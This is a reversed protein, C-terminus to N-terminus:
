RWDIAGFIMNMAFPGKDSSITKPNKGDADAVVLFAETEIATDDPSIQDKKLLEDRLPQWAYAIHRGDPAWAIGTVRGNEPFEPVPEAKKTKVDLLYPRHSLGWKHANKREPDAALFLVKTGDPSLRGTVRGPPWDPVEVLGRVTADGLATLGIKKKKEETFAVLFTKGDKGCDLVRVGAPLDLPSTKGTEPDLLLNEVNKGHEIEPHKVVVLKKGDATWNLNLSQAPLDWTKESDPKGLTRVVVKFPWSEPPEARPPGDEVVVVAVRTGDPSLRGTGNGHTKEPASFESVKKGDPTLVHFPGERTLLLTGPGAKKPAPQPKTEDIKKTEATSPKPPEQAFGGGTLCETIVWGLVLVLGGTAVVNLKHLSMTQLVRLTLAAVAAPASSPAVAATVARASLETPVTARATSALWVSLGCVPLAIGRQRLREALLRRATALRSYVTGVPLELWDAVEVQPRGELDCLVLLARFKEPLGALEEHLVTGTDDPQQETRAVDPLRGTPVERTRRKSAVARAERATRVAVGYLWVGVAERPSVSGAKRALVVFAAQFADEADQHHGTLRRCVAFVMPGFRAVLEAFADSDRDALFAGLLGGDTRVDPASGLAARRVRSVVASLTHTSM